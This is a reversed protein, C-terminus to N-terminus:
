LEKRGKFHEQLFIDRSASELGVFIVTVVEVISNVNRQRRFRMDTIAFVLFGKM